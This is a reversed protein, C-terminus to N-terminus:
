STQNCPKQKLAILKRIGRDKFHQAIKIHLICDKCITHCKRFEFARDETLLAHNAESGKALCDARSARSAQKKWMIM